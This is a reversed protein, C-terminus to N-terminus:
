SGCARRLCSQRGVRGDCHPVSTESNGVNTMNVHRGKLKTKEPNTLDDQAKALAGAMAGITESARHMPSEPLESSLAGSKSRKARLGYGAAERADEPVLKKM